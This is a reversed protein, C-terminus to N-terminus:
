ASALQTVETVDFPKKLILFNPTTGLRQTIQEWSYDSYATCIVMQMHPDTQWIREITELGDWGPPMRMDVFALQYPKEQTLAQQVKEYGEKGQSAYDLQYTRDPAADHVEGGFLEANMADLGSPEKAEHLIAQFDDFINPNDDIVLVRYM